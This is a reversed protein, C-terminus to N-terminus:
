WTSENCKRVRECKNCYDFKLLRYEKKYITTNYNKIM